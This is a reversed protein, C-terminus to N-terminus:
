IKKIKEPNQRCDFVSVITIVNNMNWYIIKYNSEVLFRYEEPYNALLEEKPGALPNSELLTVRNLIRNIIKRAIRPSVEISYYDFIDKLQRESLESWEIRIEM